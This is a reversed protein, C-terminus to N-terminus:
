KVEEINAANVAVLWELEAPSDLASKSLVINGARNRYHTKTFKYTKVDVKFTETPVEIKAAEKKASKPKLDAKLAEITAAQEELAAIRTELAATVDNVEKITKAEAM